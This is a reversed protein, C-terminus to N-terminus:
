VVIEGLFHTSRLSRLRRALRQDATVFTAAISEALAVFSSNYSTIGCSRAIEVSRHMEARDPPLIFLEMDYLSDVAEIVQATSLDDKCNM